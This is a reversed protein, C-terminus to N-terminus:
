ASEEHSIRLDVRSLQWGGTIPSAIDEVEVQVAYLQSGTLEKLPKVVETESGTADLTTTATRPEELGFDRILSVKLSGFALVKALLAGALVKFKSLLSRLIFPRSVIRAHFATVNDKYANASRVLLLGQGDTENRGMLQRLIASQDAAGGFPFISTLFEGGALCVATIAAVQGDATSWGGRVGDETERTHNTQLVLKLDPYDSDGTAVWWSVQRTTPDFLSRAVMIADLNVTRWTTLIDRGCTSIRRDSGTRCPGSEADLFYLCPMGYQDVGQVLSGPLAGLVDSVQTVDYARARTHTRSLYYTHGRKFAWVLGDCTALATLGGGTFGDLDVFPDTDTELREDNGVGDAGYVPTWTVRSDLDADEWSGGILLRDEDAALLKGSPILAYDGIDESLTFAGYGVNFATSDDATTTALITTAIRYFDGNNLSAELEWHTANPNATAAKTIQATTAAGSPTFTLVASPESRFKTVGGVQITERERYYRKGTFAVGPVGTNAGTPAAPEALGCRRVAETGPDVCHLRDVGGVSRYALFLKGHLTQAAVQVGRGETVDIEDTFTAEAWTGGEAIRSLMVHQTTLHQGLVWQEAKGDTGYPLHRALLTIAQINADADMVPPPIVLECGPRREGLPARDFEVNNAVVCMDDAITTPHDTNNM